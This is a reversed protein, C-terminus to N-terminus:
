VRRVTRGGMWRPGSILQRILILGRAQNDDEVSIDPQVEGIGKARTVKVVRSHSILLNGIRGETVEQGRLGKNM